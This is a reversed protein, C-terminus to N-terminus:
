YIKSFMKVERDLRQATYVVVTHHFGVATFCTLINRNHHVSFYYRTAVTLYVVYLIYLLFMCKFFFFNFSPRNTKTKNINLLNFWCIQKSDNKLVILCIKLIHDFYFDSLFLLKNIKPSFTCNQCSQSKRSHIQYVQWGRSSEVNCFEASAPACIEVSMLMLNSNKGKM